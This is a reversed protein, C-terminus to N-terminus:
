ETLLKGVERSPSIGAAELESKMTEHDAKTMTAPDFNSIIEKLTSQQDESLKESGGSQPRPPPPPRNIAGASQSQIEM